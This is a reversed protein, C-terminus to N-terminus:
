STNTIKNVVFWLFYDPFYDASVLMQDLKRSEEETCFTPFLCRYVAEALQDAYNIHWHNM